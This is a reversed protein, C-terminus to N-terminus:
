QRRERFSAFLIIKQPDTKNKIAEIMIQLNEKTNKDM